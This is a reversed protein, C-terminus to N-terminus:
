DLIGLSVLLATQDLTLFPTLEKQASQLDRREKNRVARVAALKDRLQDDTTDHSDLLARLEGVVTRVPHGQDPLLVDILGRVLLGGLAGMLTPSEASPSGPAKKPDFPSTGNAQGRGSRNPMEPASLSTGGMPGANEFPSKPSIPTQPVSAGLDERMACIRWLQPYLVSWEENTAQLQKKLTEWDPPNLQTPAPAPATDAARAHPIAPSLAISAAALLTLHFKPPM